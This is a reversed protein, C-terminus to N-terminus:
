VPQAAEWAKVYIPLNLLFSRRKGEWGLIISARSTKENAVVNIAEHFANQSGIYKLPANVGLVDRTGELVDKIMVTESILDFVPWSGLLGHVRDTVAHIGSVVDDVHVIAPRIELNTPVEVPETTGSKKAELIPRWWSNWIWGYVQSPRVIAVDLVDRAALIAKEHKSRWSM